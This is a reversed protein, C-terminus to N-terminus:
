SRAEMWSETGHKSAIVQRPETIGDGNAIVIMADLYGSKYAATAERKAAVLTTAKCPVWYGTESSRQTTMYYTNM